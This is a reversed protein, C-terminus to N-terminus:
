PKSQLVQATMELMLLCDPSMAMPTSVPPAPSWPIINPYATFSFSSNIGVGMESACLSVMRSECTRLFPVSGKRRGSPLDWTVTSYSAFPLTRRTSATTMEVCCESVTALSSSRAPMRFCTIWATM